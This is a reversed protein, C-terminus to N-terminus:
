GFSFREIRLAEAVTADLKDATNENIGLDLCREYILERIREAEDASLAEDM